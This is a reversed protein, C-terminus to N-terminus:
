LAEESARLAKGGTVSGHSLITLLSAAYREADAILRDGRGKLLGQALMTPIAVSLGAATTILAVSIGGAMQTPDTSGLVKIVGFTQIIGTVTGLLGILPAVAALIAMTRLFRTTIPVEQFLQEQIADEMAEKGQGARALCAGLTRPVIGPNADCLQAAAGLEQQEVQELIRHALGHARRNRLFLTYLRELALLMASLAVLSLPVMLPGGDVLREGLTQTNTLSGPRLSGTPDIPMVIQRGAAADDIAAAVLGSTDADLDESWRFGSADVPSALALGVTGDGKRYAFSIWGARLLQVEAEEGGAAYITADLSELAASAALSQGYTSLTRQLADLGLAPFATPERVLRDLLAPGDPLNIRAESIAIADARSAESVSLMGPISQAAFVMRELASQTATQLARLEELRRALQREEREAELLLAARPEIARQEDITLTLLETALERRTNRLGDLEIASSARVVELEQAQAAVEARLQVLRDTASQQAALPAALLLMLATFRLGM